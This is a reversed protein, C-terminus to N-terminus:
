LIKVKKEKLGRARRLEQIIERLHKLIVYESPKLEVDYTAGSKISWSKNEPYGFYRALHWEQNSLLVWQELFDKSMRQKKTEWGNKKRHVWVKKMANSQNYGADDKTRAIKM